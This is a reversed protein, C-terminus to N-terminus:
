KRGIGLKAKITKLPHKLYDSWYIPTRLHKSDTLEMIRQTKVRLENKEPPLINEPFTVPGLPYGYGPIEQDLPIKSPRQASPGESAKKQTGQKEQKSYRELVKELPEQKKADKAMQHRQANIYKEWFEQYTQSSTEITM